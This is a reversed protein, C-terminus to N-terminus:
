KRVGIGAGILLVSKGNTANNPTINRISPIISVKMALFSFLLNFSNKINVPIEAMTGKTKEM